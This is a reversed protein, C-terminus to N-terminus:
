GKLGEVRSGKVGKCQKLKYFFHGKKFKSHWAHEVIWGGFRMVSNRWPRYWVRWGSKINHLSFLLSPFYFINLAVSFMHRFRYFGGMVKRVCLLMEEPTIPEDPEFLPYYGDYHEWGIHETPYIRGQAKLRERLETGPLPIPLLVQLTDIRAKKIFKRLHKVRERAGMKFNVGERMPYGFIFMGHVFFGFKHFIKILSLMDKSKLSKNMAKLEEDIVSELGIAVKDIRADRMATLLESDKASDLRMQVMISLKRRIKKQYEKLMNCFRITEKRRQGFFDDVVFFHRADRAEVLSGIHELLREPPACRIKGKVTCFECNMGCGRIRGVPYVKIKAYRVLSFDPLPLLDFDTIPERPLTYAVEKNKLYAIGSINVISQKSEMASLLEKITEEGEGIVVCDIGSSLAEAITDGAFHQGGAITAIGCYKYFRAIEYLRPITNTLGGYFGIVDAPRLTQLQKHDPLGFKDRPGYKSYNNEDIIEVDWKEMKNAATAICVPGLATMKKLSRSYIATSLSVPIVVRLRYRKRSTDIKM